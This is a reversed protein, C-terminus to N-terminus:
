IFKHGPTVNFGINIFKLQLLSQTDWEAMVFFWPGRIKDGKVMKQLATGSVNPSLRDRLVHSYFVGERDKYDTTTLDSSQVNPTETRFHTFTPKLNAEVSITQATMIQSPSEPNRAVMMIKSKGAVGFFNNYANNTNNQWMKGSKFSFLYSGVNCFMEPEYGHPTSWKNESIKFVLTKAQGDYIDYPYPIESGETDYTVTSETDVLASSQTTIVVDQPISPTMYAAIQKELIFAIVEAETAGAYQLESWVVATPATGLTPYTPLPGVVSGYVETAPIIYYGEPSTGTLYVVYVSYAKYGTGPINIIHGFTYLPASGTAASYDLYGKPPVEETRPITLLYEEHYDDIGGFLFPRSGLTEIDGVSLTEYKKCFLQFARKMGIDSIPFIGDGAYRVISYSKVDPWYVKGKHEKVGEPHQTGYGGQLISIEGIFGSSKALFSNQSQDFIRVEGLYISATENKGIALMVTGEGQVKSALILKMITDMEAPLIEKNLAEFASLGNTQTGPIYVNSFSIGTKKRVQGEKTIFNPRGADTFWLNYYLDNPNMAEAFYSTSNYNRALAVVDGRFSGQLTNYERTVEGPDVVFFLEGMQFFPEQDSTKYPTYIRYIFKVTTAPSTNLTGVDAPKLLIYEGDTGIVPLNFTVSDQRILICQDGENFNYGLGARLLAATNIAIAVVNNGFTLTTYEFLGTTTNRTAYKTTEDYATVFNRTLQSLTRDVSYYWAEEPIENVADANSLTWNISAYGSTFGFNRAPVSLTGSGEVIGCKRLYRDYFTVGGKYQSQPLFLPYSAAAGIGTITCASATYVPNVPVGVGPPWLDWRYTGSPATALAVADLNAGRWTLGSFAVTVPAAPLTPYPSSSPTTTAATATLEYWGVPAVETLYVYYASYAYNIDGGRGNRHRVEILNKTLGTFGLSIASPLSLALSTKLPTDYGETNDGLVIRNKGVALTGSLIPVSHFPRVLDASSIPEGTVNGYFDYSLDQLDILVLDTAIERDWQKVVVAKNTTEQLRILQVLRVTQPVTETIDLKVEIYNYNDTPLNFLSAQSWGSLVADEGDYHVYRVAFKFSDKGIFDNIFGADYKKTIQPPFPCPKRILTIETEDVPLTIDYKATVPSSGQATMFVGLNLKRPENRNDNFYLIGNIVHAGNILNYKNFNLGQDIDDSLVVVYMTDSLIDYLYIGDDGNSNQNFFIAYRDTDDSCSGICINTGAPLTNARETNGKISEFCGISGLETTGFRINLGNIFSKASVLHPATDADLLENWIKKEGGAM